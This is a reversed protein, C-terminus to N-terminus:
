ENALVSINPLFVELCSAIGIESIDMKTERPEHLSKTIVTVLVYEDITVSELVFLLENNLSYVSGDIRPIRYPLHEKKKIVRSDKVSQVIENINADESVREKWRLLAHDTVHITEARM